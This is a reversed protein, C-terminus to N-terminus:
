AAELEGAAVTHRRASLSAGASALAVCAIAVLDPLHLVQGLLLFGVTAAIAPELSMLVGFTAAPLRRLAAIEATYPIASSFLAVVLGGVIALPASVLPRFDSFGFAVPLVAVSAVIMALTLGRGDPWHRAMRRGTVIYIAWCAGAGFVAVLGAADDAVFRGGALIYIGAGALAVWVLDLPRRSGLVAVTLPGWFEITVAVGLPIRTLAVYFLSNMAALILGLVVCTALAERSAGRLRVPQFALLLIAGFVVRMSVVPLPGFEHLLTTALGAGFQVSLAGALILLEPPVTDLRAYSGLRGPPVAPPTGGAVESGIAPEATM